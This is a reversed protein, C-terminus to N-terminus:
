NGEPEQAPSQRAAIEDRMSGDSHARGFIIAILSRM